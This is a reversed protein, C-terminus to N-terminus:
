IPCLGQAAASWQTIIGRGFSSLRPSPCSTLDNKMFYVVGATFKLCHREITAQTVTESGPWNGTEPGDSTSSKIRKQSNTFKWVKKRAVLAKTNLGESLPNSQKLPTFPRGSEGTKPLAPFTTTYLSLISGQPNPYSGPATMSYDKVRASSRGGTSASSIANALASRSTAPWITPWKSKPQFM